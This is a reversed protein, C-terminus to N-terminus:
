QALWPQVSAVQSRQYDTQVKGRQREKTAAKRPPPHLRRHIPANRNKSRIPDTCDIALAAVGGIAPAEESM